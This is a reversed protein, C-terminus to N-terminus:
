FESGLWMFSHCVGMLRRKKKKKLQTINTVMCSMLKQHLTGRNVTQMYCGTSWAIWVEKIGMVPSVWEGGRTFGETKKGSDM